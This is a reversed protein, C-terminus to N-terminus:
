CRWTRSHTWSWSTRVAGSAWGHLSGDTHQDTVRMSPMFSWSERHFILGYWLLMGQCKTTQRFPSSLHSYSAVRPSALASLRPTSHSTGGQGAPEQRNSASQYLSIRLGSLAEPPPNLTKVFYNPDYMTDYFFSLIESTYKFESLQWRWLLVFTGCFLGLIHLLILSNSQM